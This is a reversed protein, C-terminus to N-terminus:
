SLRGEALDPFAKIILLRLRGLARNLRSKVTGEAISLAEATEAVSLDLFCRLYIIEQDPKDMSRVATWLSQAETRRTSLEELSTGPSVDRRWRTLASLYRAWSRRRNHVLNVAICLLWPRLPRTVDFSSLSRWANVFTEQAVDEADDADGLLLYALRFVAEQHTGM